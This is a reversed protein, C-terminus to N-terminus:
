IICSSSNILQSSLQGGMLLLCALFLVQCRLLSQHSQLTRGLRSLNLLSCLPNPIDKQQLVRQSEKLLISLTDVHFVKYLLCVAWLLSSFYHRALLIAVNNAQNAESSCAGRKSWNSQNNCQHVQHMKGM